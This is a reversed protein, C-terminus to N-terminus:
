NARPIPTRRHCADGHDRVGSFLEVTTKRLQAPEEYSSADGIRGPVLDPLRLLGRRANRRTTTPPCTNSVFM